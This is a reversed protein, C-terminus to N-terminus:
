INKAILSKALETDRSVQAALEGLSDFKREPRIFELFELHISRGYLEGSFDLLYTEALLRSPSVTPHRGVNTVGFYSEGGFSVRTLYVGNKPIQARDDFAINATPFGLTRGIRNGSIVKSTVSYPRGLLLSANKTDGESLYRRIDSSSIPSTGILVPPLAIFGIGRESCLASLLETNGAGNKGFTFNFGCVIFDARLRKVIIEEFFEFPSLSGVDLDFPICVFIDAGLDKIIREKEERSTLLPASNPSFFNKPPENFCWVASLLSREKAIDIAKSIVAAHGLHVGDFCGLACVTRAPAKFDNNRYSLM